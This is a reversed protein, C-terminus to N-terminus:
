RQEDSSDTAAGSDQTGVLRDSSSVEDALAALVQGHCIRGELDGYLGGLPACWCGLTKGRLEGLRALLQPQEMLWARYRAIANGADPDGPAPRFPNGWGTARLEPYRNMSRGIYLDFPERRCHVVKTRRLPAHHDPPLPRSDM